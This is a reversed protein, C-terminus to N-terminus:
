FNVIPDSGDRREIEDKLKETLQRAIPMMKEQMANVVVEAKQRAREEFYRRWCIMHFYSEDITRDGEYSGLCVFLDNSFDIPLKCNLCNKDDCDKAM